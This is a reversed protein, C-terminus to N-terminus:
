FRWANELTSSRLCRGQGSIFEHFFLRKFITFKLISMLTVAAITIIINQEIFGFKIKVIDNDGPLEM